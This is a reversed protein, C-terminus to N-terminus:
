FELTKFHQRRSHDGLPKRFHQSYKSSSLSYHHLWCSLWNIREYQDISSIPAKAKIM